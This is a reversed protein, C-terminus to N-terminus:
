ESSFLGLPHTGLAIAANQQEVVLGVHKRTKPPNQGESAVMHHRRSMGLVDDIEQGLMLGVHNEGVQLHRAEVAHADQPRGHLVVVACRHDDDGGIAGDLRGNLSDFGPCEVVQCLGDLSRLEGVADAAGQRVAVRLGLPTRLARAAFGPGAPRQHPLAVRHALHNAQQVAHGPGVGIHKEGPFRACALLHCGAAEVRRTVAARLGKDRDVADGQGLRQELALEESVLPPCERPRIKSSASPPV